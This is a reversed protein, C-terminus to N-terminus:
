YGRALLEMKANARQAILDAEAMSVGNNVITQHLHVERSSSSGGWSGSMGQIYRRPDQGAPVVDGNIPATFFEQGLENVRYTMGATVGGGSARAGAVKVGYQATAVGAGIANAQAELAWQAKNLANILALGGDLIAQAIGMGQDPGKAVIQEILTEDVGRKRLTAILAGFKGLDAGKGQLDALLGKGTLSKSFLDGINAGSTLGTAVQNALDVAAKQQAILKEIAAKHAETAKAAAEARIKYVADAANSAKTAATTRIKAKYLQDQLAILKKQEAAVRKGEAAQGAKTTQKPARAAAVARQQLTIARQIAAQQAKAAQEARDAKLAADKAPAAARNARNAAALTSTYNVGAAPDFPVGLQKLLFAIDVLRGGPLTFGGDAFSKVLGMGFKGAVQGLIKESRDRKSPALPIFAEGGTEQEAWQVMGAGKGPAITAQSPLKGNAYSPIVGHPYYGGNANPPVRVGVDKHTTTEVMNKYFNTTITVTKSSPLSNLEGKAKAINAELNSIEAKLTAKQTATLHPDKLKAKATALKSELDTINAQLRATRTVNPIAIFQAAMAVAEAKNYGMQQALKIYAARGTEAAKAAKVNGDNANRMAVTQENASRALDDLSQQNARGKATNLDHTHGNEKVSETAADVAAQYGIEAGSLQLLINANRTLADNAKQTAAWQRDYAGALLTAAVNAEHTAHANHLASATAVAMSAGTKNLSDAFNATGMSAARTAAATADTSSTLSKLIGIGGGLGSFLFKLPELTSGIGAMTVDVLSLGHTFQEFATNADNLIKILELASKVINGLGRVFDGLAQPNAAVSNSLDILGDSISKIADKLAGGQGLDDLVKSFADSIPGIAPILGELAVSFNNVFSDVPHALDSFAKSLTPSFDDVTRKFYGAINILVSEFPKSLLQMETGLGSLTTSWIHGVEQSKAAFIIPLAALGAGFAAVFAGGAVAGAAPMATLVAATLIAIVAPGLIPTKLVGLFGSGFVTGGAKGVDAAGGKGTLWKRLGTIFGKGSRNGADEFKKVAREASAASEEAGALSSGGKGSKQAEALRLQAVRLRGLANAHADTIKSAKALTKSMSDTSKGVNESSKGLKDLEVSAGKASTSIKKGATEAEVGAKTVKTSATDAKTGLDDFGTKKGVTALKKNASDAAAELRKVAAPAKVGIDGVFDSIDAELRVKVTRDAM